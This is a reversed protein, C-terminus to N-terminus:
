PWASRARCRHATGPIGSRSSARARRSHRTSATTVCRRASRRIAPASARRPPSSTPRSRAAQRRRVLQRHTGRRHRGRRLLDPLRPARTARGPGGLVAAAAHLRSPRRRQDVECFYAAVSEPGVEALVADLAELAQEGTPDLRWTSPPIHPQERLYPTLPGQLGARGTLSLTAMTPGHYAQAPSIVRWRGPDGREVHYSRAMRLATENAEAGGTVFHVRTFGDPAVSM